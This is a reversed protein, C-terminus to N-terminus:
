HQSAEQEASANFLAEVDPDPEALWRLRIANQSCANALSLKGASRATEAAREWAEAAAISQLRHAEYPSM